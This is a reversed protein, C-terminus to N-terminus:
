AQSGHFAAPYVVIGSAAEGEIVIRQFYEPPAGPYRLSPDHRFGFRGYYEPDGLLVIGRAGRERLREIGNWILASGIGRGQDKPWVSVPGLDYWDSSGDSINVRSFAIHGLISGDSVAVLSLALDGDRRLVDILHQEDGDSFPMDRFAAETLAHIIREDGPQEKRITIKIM